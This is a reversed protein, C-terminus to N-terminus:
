TITNKVIVFHRGTETETFLEDELHYGHNNALPYFVRYSEQDFAYAGGLNLGDLIESLRTKRKQFEVGSNSLSKIYRNLASQSGAIVCADGDCLVDQPPHIAYYGIVADKEKAM